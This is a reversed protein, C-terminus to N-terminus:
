PPARGDTATDKGVSPSRPAENNAVLCKCVNIAGCQRTWNYPHMSMPCKPWVGGNRNATIQQPNTACKTCLINLDPALLLVGHLRAGFFSSIIM